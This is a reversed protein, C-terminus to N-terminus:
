EGLGALRITIYDKKSQEALKELESPLYSIVEKKFLWKGIKNYYKYFLYEEYFSPTHKIFGDREIWDEASPKYKKIWKDFVSPADQDLKEKWGKRKAWLTRIFFECLAIFIVLFGLIFLRRSIVENPTEVTIKDEDSIFPALCGYAPYQWMRWLKM